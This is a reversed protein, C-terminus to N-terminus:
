GNINKAREILEILTSIKDAPPNLAKEIEAASYNARLYEEIPLKEFTCDKIGGCPLGDNVSRCYKFPVYHGLKRCFIQATDFSEM